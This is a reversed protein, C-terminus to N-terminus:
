VCRYKCRVDGITAQRFFFLVLKNRNWHCNLINPMALLMKCLNELTWVVLHSCQGLKAEFVFDRSNLVVHIQPLRSVFGNSQIALLQDIAQYKKL